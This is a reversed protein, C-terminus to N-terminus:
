RVHIWGGNELNCCVSGMEAIEPREEVANCGRCYKTLAWRCSRGTMGRMAGYLNDVRRSGLM